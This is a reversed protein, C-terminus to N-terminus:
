PEHPSQPGKPDPWMMELSELPFALTSLYHSAKYLFSVSAPIHPGTPLFYAQKCIYICKKEAKTHLGPMVLLTNELWILWHRFQSM